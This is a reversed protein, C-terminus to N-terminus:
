PYHQYSCKQEHRNTYMRVCKYQSDMIIKTIAVSQKKHHEQKTKFRKKPSNSSLTLNHYYQIQPYNLIITINFLRQFVM